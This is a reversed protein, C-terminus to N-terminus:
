ERITKQYLFGSSISLCKLLESQIEKVFRATAENLCNKQSAADNEKSGEASYTLYFPSGPCYKM